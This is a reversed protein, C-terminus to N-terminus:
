PPVDAVRGSNRDPFTLRVSLGPTGGPSPLGDALEITAGHRNAVEKVISLGLGTGQTAGDIGHASTGRYFRDFVREREAAAIGPGSDAVELTLAHMEARLRVDVRGGRPTYRLANDVLNNLLIRLHHADGQVLSSRLVNEAEAGLDIERSRALASFDAVVSKALQALDVRGSPRDGADPALRALQLLQDVLHASRDLGRRMDAMAEDRMAPDTAKELLQVQLRLATIPTRLEHAADTTFRRQASLAMALRAMLANIAEVLPKLEAPLSATAIPELSSASRQGVDNSAQTLPALGRRLGFALLLAILVLTAALNPLLIEVATDIALEERASMLQAAQILHTPSREAYVRWAGQRTDLTSYGQEDVWPIEAAPFSLFVRQKDLDWIQTVLGADELEAEGGPTVRPTSVEGRYHTRVSLALQKLQEDFVDTMEQRTFEYTAFGLLLGGAALALALRVMVQRQISVM